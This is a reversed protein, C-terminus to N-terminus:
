STEAYYRYAALKRGISGPRHRRLPLSPWSHIRGGTPELSSVFNRDIRGPESARHRRCPQPRREGGRNLVHTDIMTTKVDSHGLLEQVTRIDYGDALLHM